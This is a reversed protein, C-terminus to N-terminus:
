ENRLAQIPNLHAARWAPILTFVFTISLATLVTICVEGPEVIAPLKSLFYIEPSFLSTGSLAELGHRIHEINWCFLLGILVGGATGTVGLTAGTLFFIRLIAGRTAGMTRLIGIERTKDKVLIVMSSIINFAAIIIILTLILFMVNRETMVAEFFARNSQRWDLIKIGEINKELLDEKVQELYSPSKLFVELGSVAGGEIKQGGGDAGQAGPSLRYFIQATELPIFVVGKDYQNNGSEYVAAVRFDKYRPM